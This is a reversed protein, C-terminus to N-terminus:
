EFTQCNFSNKKPGAKKTNTKRKLQGGIRNKEDNM